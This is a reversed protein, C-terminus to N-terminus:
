NMIFIKSKQRSLHVVISNRTSVYESGFIVNGNRKYFLKRNLIKRLKRIKEKGPGGYFVPLRGTIKFIEKKKIKRLELNKFVKELEFGQHYNKALYDSIDAQVDIDNRAFSDYLAYQFLQNGLGGCFRIVIM